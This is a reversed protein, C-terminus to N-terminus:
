CAHRALCLHASRFLLGGICESTLSVSSIPHNFGWQLQYSQLPKVTCLATVEMQIKQCVMKTSMKEGWHQVQLVLCISAATSWIYANRYAASKHGPTM